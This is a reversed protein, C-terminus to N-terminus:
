KMHCMGRVEDKCCTRYEYDCGVLINKEAVMCSLMQDRKTCGQIHTSCSIQMMIAFSLGWVSTRHWGVCACAVNRDSAAHCTHLM